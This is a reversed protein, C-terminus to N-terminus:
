PRRNLSCLLVVMVVMLRGMCTYWTSEVDFSKPKFTQGYRRTIRQLNPNALGDATSYPSCPPGQRPSSYEMTNSQLQLRRCTQTFLILIWSLAALVMLPSLHFKAKEKSKGAWCSLLQWTTRMRALARSGQNLQVLRKQILTSLKFRGGVKNVIEEEKLEELM